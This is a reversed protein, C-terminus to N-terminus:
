NSCNELGQKTRFVPSFSMLFSMVAYIAVSIAPLWRKYCNPIPDVVRLQKDSPM